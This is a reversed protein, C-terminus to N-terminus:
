NREMDRWRLFVRDMVFSLVQSFSSRAKELWELFREEVKAALDDGPRLGRAKFTTEPEVNLGGEDIWEATGYIILDVPAGTEPWTYSPVPRYNLPLNVGGEGFWKRRFYGTLNVVAGPRGLVKESGRWLRYLRERVKRSPVRRRDAYDRVSRRSIGLRDAIQQQSLGSRRLDWVRSSVTQSVKARDRQSVTRRKKAM